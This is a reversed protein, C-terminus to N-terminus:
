GLVQTLVSSQGMVPAPLPARPVLVPQQPCTHRDTQEESLPRGLCLAKWPASRLFLLVCAAKFTEARLCKWQTKAPM